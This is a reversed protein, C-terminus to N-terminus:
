GQPSKSQWDATVLNSCWALASWIANPSNLQTHTHPRREQTFISMQTGTMSTSHSYSPYAVLFLPLHALQKPLDTGSM